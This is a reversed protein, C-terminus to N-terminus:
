YIHPLISGQSHHFKGSARPTRRRLRVAPDLRTKTSWKPKTIFKLSNSSPKSPNQIVVFPPEFPHSPISLHSTFFPSSPNLSHSLQPCISADRGTSCCTCWLLPCNIYRYKRKPSAHLLEAKSILSLPIRRFSEVGGLIAFMGKQYIYIRSIYLSLIGM